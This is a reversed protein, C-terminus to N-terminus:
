RTSYVKCSGNTAGIATPLGHVFVVAKASRARTVKKAKAFSTVLPRKEVASPQDLVGV